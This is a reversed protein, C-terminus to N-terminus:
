QKKEKQALLIAALTDTNASIDYLEKLREQEIRIAEQIESLRKYERNLSQELNELVSSVSAKLSAINKSIATENNAAAKEVTQKKEVRAKIEKPNDAAKEELQKLLKNYAEFIQAKTNTLNVKQSM